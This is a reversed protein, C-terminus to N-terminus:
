CIGHLPTGPTFGTLHMTLSGLAPARMRVRLIRREGDDSLHVEAESDEDWIGRSRIIPRVALSPFTGAPVTVAERRLVQVTVPNGHERFYRHFTLEDGVELPLTRLYFVFSLDDLPHDSVLPLGLDRGVWDYRKEEPYLEFHRIRERRLQRIDQIYRRSALTEVDMWSRYHDNVRALPVGGRLRWDLVYTLHGRVEELGTVAVHAEGVNVAGWQVSFDMREGEGFPVPSPCGVFPPAAVPAVSDGPFPPTQGALAGRPLISTVTSMLVVAPLLLPSYRAM